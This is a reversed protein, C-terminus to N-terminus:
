MDVVDPAELKRKQHVLTECSQQPKEGTFRVLDPQQRSISWPMSMPPVHPVSMPPTQPMKLWSAENQSTNHNSMNPQFISQTMPINQGVMVNHVVSPQM